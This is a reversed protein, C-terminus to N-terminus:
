QGEERECASPARGTTAAHFVVVGDSRESECYSITAWLQRRAECCAIKTGEISQHISYINGESRTPKRAACNEGHKMRKLLARKERQQM